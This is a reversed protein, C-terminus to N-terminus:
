SRTATAVQVSAVKSKLLARSCEDVTSGTTFVDDILLVRAGLLRASSSARFAGRLNQLRKNRDFHTQSETRRTRLLCNAVPKNCANALLEAIAMAQNFERERLKTHHLPVPVIVDFPQLRPDDLCEILWNAVIQRLHFERQYKLRHIINRATGSNVRCSIAHIFSFNRDLCTSCTFEQTIEGLFPQSCRQCFPPVVKQITRSCNRCLLQGEPLPRRCVRCNFPYLLAILGGAFQRVYNIWLRAPSM